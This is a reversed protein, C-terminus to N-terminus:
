DNLNFSDINFEGLSLMYQNYFANLLWISGFTTDVITNEDTRNLQLIYMPMGFMMLAVTFIIMFYRIDYITETILKIFFSTPGFLKCWDLVKIWLCFTALAAIVRQTEFSPFEVGIIGM